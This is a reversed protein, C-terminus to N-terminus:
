ETPYSPHTLIACVGVSPQGSVNRGIYGYGKEGWGTGWSNRIYFSSSTYGVAVISHDTHTGCKKYDTMVGSHYNNFYTSSADVSVSTATKNIASQLASDSKEKVDVHGRINAYVHIDSNHCSHTSGSGSSYPYDNETTLGEKNQIWDYASRTDGGNCGSSYYDCSVLEQESLKEL